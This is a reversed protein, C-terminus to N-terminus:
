DALPLVGQRKANGAPRDFATWIQSRRRLDREYAEEMYERREKLIQRRVADVAFELPIPGAARRELVRVVRWANGDEIVDSIEGVASSFLTKALRVSPAETRTTWDFTEVEVAKIRNTAMPPQVIGMARNRVYEIAERAEDRSSFNTVPATLQEFRIAAPRTFMPKNAEYCAKLQEETVVDDVRINSKLWASAIAAEDGEAVEFAAQSVNPSSRRAEQCILKRDIVRALERRMYEPRQRIRDDISMSPGLNALQRDVEPALESEFILEGNVEALVAGSTRIVSVTAAKV